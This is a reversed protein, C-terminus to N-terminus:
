NFNQFYQGFRRDPGIICYHWIPIDIDYAELTVQTMLTHETFENCNPNIRKQILSNLQLM